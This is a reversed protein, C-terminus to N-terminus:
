SVPVHVKFLLSRSQQESRSELLRQVYDPAQHRVDESDVALLMAGVPVQAEMPSSSSDVTEDASSTIEIDM